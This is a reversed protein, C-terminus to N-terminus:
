GQQGTGDCVPCEEDDDAGSLGGEITGTGACQGCGEKQWHPFDYASFAIQQALKEMADDDLALFAEADMEGRGGDSLPANIEDTFRAWWQVSDDDFTVEIQLYAAEGNGDPGTLVADLWKEAEASLDSDDSNYCDHLDPRDPYQRKWEANQADYHSDIVKQLCPPADGRSDYGSLWAVGTVESGRRYSLKEPDRKDISEDDDAAAEIALGCLIFTKKDLADFM